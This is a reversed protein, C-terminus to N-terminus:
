RKRKKTKPKFNEYFCDNPLSPAKRFIPIYAGFYFDSGVPKGMGFWSGLYDTGLFIPGLRAALGLTPLQYNHLLSFPMSVEFWRTEYRPVVSMSSPVNWGIGQQPKLSQVWLGGVYLKESFRYDASLQLTTPLMVTFATQRDSVDNIGFAGSTAVLARDTSTIDRFQGSSLLVNQRTIDYRKVWNPNNITMFGLDTISVGVKWQYKNVTPNLVREGKEVYSLKRVNPRYEFMAGIDLGWGGGASNNGFIWGFSPSVNQAAADITGGYQVRASNVFVARRTADAPDNVIEYSGDRVQAHINHISTLRKATIGAKLFQEEDNRIVRGYTIGIESYSNENFSFNENTIKKGLASSNEVGKWILDALDASAGTISAGYRVRTTFAVAHKHNITYLVSPGKLDGLLYVNRDPEITPELYSDRFITRGSSNQYQAPVSQTVMQLFSYPANWSVYNNALFLDNGVLNIFVKYRTDVVNAPNNALAYTGAYNSTAIGAWQQAKLLFSLSFCFTLLLFRM